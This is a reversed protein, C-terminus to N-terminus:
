RIYHATQGLMEPTVLTVGNESVTFRKRDEAPDFGIEIGPPISCHKDIVVRRLKAGRGVDVDPLIVSDEVQAYSHVRVKSFLLSRRVEAGSIIDGGSVLSDVAMGRRGEDDFVFKAPPLQEQYTWIPWVEDYLDLEPTVKTLEINAEWYADITGVDRWYPAGGEAMDVCSDAFNHAYAHYRSVVHPIIDKGFDHSSSPLDSDRILQEYLFDANFAYVGMSVLARDPKGPICFPKAPKEQFSTISQHDDVGVVGFSSAESLPVELCAVSMDAGNEAHYALMRGYDMKYIHDGSLVMVYRPRNRRIVDLNQFVADATGQYWNPNDPTQEAALIEVFGQNFVDMRYAQSIHRNLSASNFQTLVFIRRIDAHLCNSIPIDILRYKGGIPVAPKSRHQTLPFLRTGQGGGLIISLVENNM